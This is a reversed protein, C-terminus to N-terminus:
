TKEGGRRMRRKKKEVKKDWIWDKSQPGFYDESTALTRVETRKMEFASFKGVHRVKQQTHAWFENERSPRTLTRACVNKRHLTQHYTSNHNRDSEYHQHGKWKQRWRQKRRSNPIVNKGGRWAFVIRNSPGGASTMDDENRTPLKQKTSQRRKGQLQQHFKPSKSISYMKEPYALYGCLLSTIPRKNM